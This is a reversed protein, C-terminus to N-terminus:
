IQHKFFLFTYLYAYYMNLYYSIIIGLDVLRLWVIKGNKVIM